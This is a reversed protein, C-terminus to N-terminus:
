RHKQGIAYLLYSSAPKILFTGITVKFGSKEKAKISPHTPYGDAIGITQGKEDKAIVIVKTYDVQFDNPNYVDGIIDTFKNSYSAKKAIYNAIELKEYPKDFSSQKVSFASLEVKAYTPAKQILILVDANQGPKLFKIKAYGKQEEIRQGSKNYLSIVVGARVATQEGENVISTIWYSDGNVTVGKLQNAIKISSSNDVVTNFQTDNAAHIEQNNFKPINNLPKTILDNTISRNINHKEIQNEVPTENKINEVTDTIPQQKLLVVALGGMVLLLIITSIALIYPKKKTSKVQPAILGGDDITFRSGCYECESVSNSISKISSSSCAPCKILEIKSM